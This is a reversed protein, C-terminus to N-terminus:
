AISSVTVIAVVPQQADGILTGAGWKDLPPRQGGRLRSGQTDYPRMNNIRSTTYEPQVETGFGVHKGKIPFIINPMIIIGFIPSPNASATGKQM